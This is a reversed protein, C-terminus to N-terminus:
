IKGEAQGDNVIPARFKARFEEALQHPENEDGCGTQESDLAVNVDAM